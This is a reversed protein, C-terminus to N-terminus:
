SHNGEVLARLEAGVQPGIPLTNALLHEVCDQLEESFQADAAQMTREIYNAWRAVAIANAANRKLMDNPTTAM